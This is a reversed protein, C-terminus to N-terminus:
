SNSCPAPIFQTITPDEAGEIMKLDPEIVVVTNGLRKRRRESGDYVGTCSWARAGACADVLERLVDGVLRPM